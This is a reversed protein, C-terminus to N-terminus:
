FESTVGSLQTGCYRVNDIEVFDSSCEGTTDMPELRFDDFKIEISCYGPLGTFKYKCGLNPPYEAPYGYSKVQGSVDAFCLECISPSVAFSTDHHAPELGDTCEKQSGTILFGRRSRASDSRFTITKEMESFDFTIASNSKIRGCMRKRDILLYDYECNGGEELDFEIFRLEFYCVRPNSKQLIFRCNVNEPYAAPYNPSRLEFDM